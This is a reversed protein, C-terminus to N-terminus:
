TEVRVGEWLDLFTETQEPTPEFPPLGSRALCTPDLADRIYAFASSSNARIDIAARLGTADDEIIRTLEARAGAHDLVALGVLINDPLDAARGAAAFRLRNLLRKMERPSQLVQYAAATWHRLAKTFDASDDDSTGHPRSAEIVAALVALALAPIFVFLVWRPLPPSVGPYFVSSPSPPTQQLPQAASQSSTTPVPAPHSATQMTTQPSVPASANWANELIPYLDYGGWMGFGVLLLLCLGGLAPLLARVARPEVAPESAIDVLRKM